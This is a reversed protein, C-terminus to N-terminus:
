FLKQSNWSTIIEKSICYIPFPKLTGRIREKILYIITINCKMVAHVVVRQCSGCGPPHGLVPPDPNTLERVTM